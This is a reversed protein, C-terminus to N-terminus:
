SWPGQVLMHEGVMGDGDRDTRSRLFGFGKGEGPQFPGAESAGEDAM